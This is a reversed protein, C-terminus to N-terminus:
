LPGPTLAAARRARRYLRNERWVTYLGTAIILLAGTLTLLDPREGFVAMGVLISFILRTYRFPALASAEGMRMATVIGYYGFIGFVVGTLLMAVDTPALPAPRAPSIVLMLGGALVLVAFGQFSVVLSDVDKDIQRTVLDRVAIAIVSILVWLVNPNFGELGPRVILLVGAFGLAIATWRRWGVKERQFLAAGAAIALPTAQFVAAVTSLDVRALATFFAMAAVGDSAARVLSARRWAAAAFLRKRRLLAAAAFAGSSLAGIMILIQSTPLTTSLQKIFSDEITFAAMSLVVLLIGQLNNM